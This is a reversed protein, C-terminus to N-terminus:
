INNLIIELLHTYLVCYFLSVFKWLGFPTIDSNATKYTLKLAKTVFVSHSKNIYGFNQKETYEHQKCEGKISNKRYQGQSRKEPASVSM